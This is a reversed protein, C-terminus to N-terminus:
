YVTFPLASLHSVADDKDLREYKYAAQKALASASLLGATIISTFKMKDFKSLLLSEPLVPDASIAIRVQRTVEEIRATICSYISFTKGHL